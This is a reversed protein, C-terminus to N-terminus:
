LDDRRCKGVSDRIVLQTAITIKEQSTYYRNDMKRMILDVAIRCAEEMHTRISSMSIDM